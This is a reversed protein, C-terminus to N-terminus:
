ITLDITENNEIVPVKVLTYNRYGNEYIYPTHPNATKRATGVSNDKKIAKEYNNQASCNTVITLAVLLTFITKM